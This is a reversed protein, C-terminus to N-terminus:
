KKAEATQKADRLAELYAVFAWRDRISTNHKLPGMMGAGHTITKFVSGAPRPIDVLNAAGAFAAARAGTVGKGNAGAGHCVSCHISYREEGHALFQRADELNKVGLEALPVGAGGDGTYTYSDNNTFGFEPVKNRNEETLPEFGMPVINSDPTRAGRGDAFFNSAQQPLQKDQEDMDPFIRWETESFKGFRNPLFLLLLLM